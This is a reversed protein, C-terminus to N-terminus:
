TGHGGADDGPRGRGVRRSGLHVKCTHARLAKIEQKSLRNGHAILGAIEDDPPSAGVEFRRGAHKGGTQVLANDALEYGVGEAELRRGLDAPGTWPGPVRLEIRPATDQPDRPVGPAPQPTEPAPDDPM